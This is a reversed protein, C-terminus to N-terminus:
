LMVAPSYSAPVFRSPRRPVLLTITRTTCFRLAQRQSEDSAQDRDGNRIVNAM